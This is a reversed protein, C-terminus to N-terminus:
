LYFCKEKNFVQVYIKIKIKNSQIFFLIFASKYRDYNFRNHVLFTLTFELGSYLFLYLFNALGVNKLVSLDAPQVSKIPSFNFLSVPNIFQLSQYFNSKLSKARKEQPLTEKYFKAVFLINILTLGTALYAPYTYFNTTQSSFKSSFIAGISPGILFGLSFAIGVLAMASSRTTKDSLDTM